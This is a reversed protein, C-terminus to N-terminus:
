PWGHHRRLAGAVARVISAILQTKSLTTSCQRGSGLDPARRAKGVPNVITTQILCSGSSDHLTGLRRRDAM